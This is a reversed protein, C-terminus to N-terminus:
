SPVDDEADEHHRPHHEQKWDAFPQLPMRVIHKSVQGPQFADPKHAPLPDAGQHCLVPLANRQGDTGEEDNEHDGEQHGEGGDVEGTGSVREAAKLQVLPSHPDQENGDYRGAEGLSRQHAPVLLEGGLFVLFFVEFLGLVSQVAAFGFSKYVCASVFNLYFGSVTRHM